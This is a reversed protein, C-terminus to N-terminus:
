KWNNEAERIFDLIEELPVRDKLIRTFDEQRCFFTIESLIRLHQKASATVILLLTDVREGDLSNWDVPKKLFALTAFQHSDTKVIPNRPHPFAIGKGFSTSMLAERELVAELLIEAPVPLKSRILNIAASLVEGPSTGEVDRLVGGRELLEALGRQSEAM